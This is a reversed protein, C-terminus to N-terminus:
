KLDGASQQLKYFSLQADAGQLVLNVRAQLLAADADLVESMLAAQEDYRAKTMRYNEEAQKVSLAIMPIKNITTQCFSYNKFIEMKLNDDLMSSQVQMQSVQQRADEVSHRGTYLSTLNWSVTVGVDWTNNFEDVLPFIRQNPRADLYDAGLSVTPYFVSQAIKVNAQSAQVRLDLSKKENRNAFADSEYVSEAALQVAAFLGTTDTEIISGQKLGLLICLNFQAIAISNDVDSKALEVNSEHLQAKMVDNDTVIGRDRQSKIEDVLKKLAVIEQDVIQQSLKLKVFSVYASMINLRVESQDKDIDLQTAKTLYNYSEETYKLKWGNFIGERLGISASFTNPINPMMTIPEPNGPFSFSLPTINSLRTYGANVFVNPLAADKIQSQKVQTQNFKMSDLKLQKSNSLGLQVAQTITIPSAVSQSYSKQLFLIAFLSLIIKHKM